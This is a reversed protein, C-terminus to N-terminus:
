SGARGARLRSVLESLEAARVFGSLAYGAVTVVGFVGALLAVRLAAAARGSPPEGTWGSWGAAALTAVVAVALPVRVSRWWGPVRGEGGRHFGLLLVGSALVSATATAIVAGLLGFRPILVSSATAHLAFLLLHVRAELWPRGLGRRACTAIGTQVLAGMGVAVGATALAVERHGPGLWLTVLAPAGVVAFATLPANIAALYRTARLVLASFREPERRGALEAFAPVLPPLMLFPAFWMASVLRTALEYDTVAPLAFLTALLFKDLQTHFFSGLTVIQLAGSFRGVERLVSADIAGPRGLSEPAERRVAYWGWCAALLQALAASVVLTYLGGGAALLVGVGALQVAAVGIGIRGTVDMRQLGGLVANWVGAVNAIALVGAMAVLTVGAEEALAPPVRLAALIGDRAFAVVAFGALGLVGFVVMGLVTASRLLRSDGTARATAVFRVLSQSLGLDFTAAYGAVAFFLAWLAFREAGLAGLLPPTVIAWSVLVIVRSGISWLTNRAIRAGLGDAPTRTVPASGPVEM